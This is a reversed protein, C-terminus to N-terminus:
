GGGNRGGDGAGGVGEGAGGAGVFVGDRRHGSSVVTLAGQWVCRVNGTVGLNTLEPQIRRLAEGRALAVNAADAAAKATSMLARLRPLVRTHALEESAKLMNDLILPM